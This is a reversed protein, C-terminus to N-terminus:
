IEFPNLKKHTIRFTDLNKRTDIIKEKSIKALLPYVNDPFGKFKERYYEENFITYDFQELKFQQNFHEDSYLIFDQFMNILEEEEIKNWNSEEEEITNKM